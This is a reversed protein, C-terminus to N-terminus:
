EKCVVVERGQQTYYNLIDPLVQSLEYMNEWRAKLQTGSDKLLVPNAMLCSLVSIFDFEDGSNYLFGDKKLLDEHGKINSCLAPKGLAMAELLHFPLGESESSSVIIDALIYLSPLYSVQGMFHVRNELKLTRVMNKCNEEETGTGALVLHVTEPCRLLSKILFLQNKRKSFEAGYMLLFSTPPLRHIKHYSLMDCQELQPITVGMGNIHHIEHGLKYKKAMEYDYSNMTLICDTKNKLLKEASLLIEKKLPNMKEHFLYGHVVCILRPPNKVFFLALRSWFSALATHTVVCDYKEKKMLGVLEKVAIINKVHFYKKTFPIHHQQVVGHFNETPNPYALHVEYGDQALAVFYPRHFQKFHSETSATMLIKKM